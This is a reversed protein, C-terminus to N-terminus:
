PVPRRGRGGEGLLCLPSSPSYRPPSAGRARAPARAALRARWAVHSQAPAPELSSRAGLPVRRPSSALLFPGPIGGSALRWYAVKGLARGGSSAPRPRDPPVDPCRPQLAPSGRAVAWPPTRVWEFVWGSEDPKPVEKTGTPVQRSIRPDVPVGGQGAGLINAM